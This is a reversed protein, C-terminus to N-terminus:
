VKDRIPYFYKKRNRRWNYQDEKETKKPLLTINLMAYSDNFDLSCFVYGEDLRYARLYFRGYFATKCNRYWNRYWNVIETLEKNLQGKLTIQPLGYKGDLLKFLDETYKTLDQLENGGYFSGLHKYQIIINDVKSDYDGKYKPLVMVKVRKMKGYRCEMKLTYIDDDYLDIWEIDLNEGGIAETITNLVTLSPSDFDINRIDLPDNPDYNSEFNNKLPENLDEIISDIEEEDSIEIASGSIYEKCNISYLFSSFLEELIKESFGYQFVIKSIEQEIYNRIELKSDKIKESLYFLIGRPILIALIHQAPPLDKFGQFDKLVNILRKEKCIEFGFMEFAKEFAKTLSSNSISNNDM